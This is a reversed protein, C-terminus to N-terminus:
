NDFVSKCDTIYKKEIEDTIELAIGKIDPYITSHSIKYKERLENKIQDRCSNPIFIKVTKSNFIDYGEYPIYSIGFLMFVGNQNVIRPDENKTEICIPHYIKSLTDIKINDINLIDDKINIFENTNKNTFIPDIIHVSSGKDSHGNNKLFDEIEDNENSKNIKATTAVSFYLATLENRSFDLLRTQIDYHQMVYLYDALNYNKCKDPFFDNYYKIFTDIAALDSKMIAESKRYYRGNIERGSHNLGIVSYERFLSPILSYTANSMGRYWLNQNQQKLDDIIEIYENLNKAIKLNM